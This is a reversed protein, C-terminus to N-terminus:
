NTDTGTEAMSELVREYLLARNPVYIGTEIEDGGTLYAVPIRERIAASIAGGIRTAEDLKTLVLSMRKPRPICSAIASINAPDMGSDVVLRIVAGDLKGTLGALCQLRQEGLGAIGPTDILVPCNGGKEMERMLAADDAVAKFKIGLRKCSSALHKVGKSGAPGYYLVRPKVGRDLLVGVAVKLLATTKGSGSPGMFVSVREEPMELPVEGIMERLYAEFSSDPLPESNLFRKQVLAPDFGANHLNVRLDSLRRRRDSWDPPALKMVIAGLQSEIEELDRLVGLNFDGSPRGASRAKAERAGPGPVARTGGLNGATDAARHNAAVIEVVHEAGKRRRMTQLIVADDGMEAKALALSKAINPGTFKKIRMM